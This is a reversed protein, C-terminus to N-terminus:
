NTLHYLIIGTATAVNLSNAIGYMPIEVAADCLHLLDDSVGDVEHGVIVAIPKRFDYEKYNISNNTQELAVIQIGKNKLELVLKKVDDRYEWPVYDITKLATKEIEKRPPSATIGCLFLKEVKTADATRFIAGVNYMSRINDLILIVGSRQGNKIDDLNKNAVLEQTKRKKM